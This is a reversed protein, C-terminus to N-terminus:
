GPHTSGWSRKGFCRRSYRIVLEDRKKMLRTAFRYDMPWLGTDVFFRKIDSCIIADFAAIACVLMFQVSKTDMSAASLLSDRTKRVTQAFAKNLHQDCPQLFHSRNAPAQIVECGNKTAAELWDLGKRSSHGDLTLLYKQSLNVFKRMHRNLHEMYLPVLRKEMYGNESMVISADEPFWGENTFRELATGKLSSVDAGRLPQTWGSM